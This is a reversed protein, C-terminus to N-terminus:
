QCVERLLTLRKSHGKFNLALSRRLDFGIGRIRRMAVATRRPKHPCEQCKHGISEAESRHRLEGRRVVCENSDDINKVGWQKQKRVFTFWNVLEEAPVNFVKPLTLPTHSCKSGHDCSIATAEFTASVREHSKDDTIM